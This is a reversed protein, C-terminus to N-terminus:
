KLFSFNVKKFRSNVTINKLWIRNWPLISFSLNYPFNSARFTSFNKCSNFDHSKMIAIFNFLTTFWQYIIRATSTITFNVAMWFGNSVSNFFWFSSRTICPVEYIITNKLDMGDAIIINKVPTFHMTWLPWFKPNILQNETWCHESGQCGTIETKPQYWCYESFIIKCWCLYFYKRRNRSTVRLYPSYVLLSTQKIWDTFHSIQSKVHNTKWIFKVDIKVSNCYSSKGISYVQPPWVQSNVNGAM